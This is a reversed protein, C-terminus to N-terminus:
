AAGTRSLMLSTKAHQTITNALKADIQTSVAAGVQGPSATLVKLVQNLYNAVQPSVGGGGMLASNPIIQAPSGFNVLEPGLEGVLALGSTTGMGTGAAHSQPMHIIAALAGADGRFDYALNGMASAVATISSGLVGAVQNKLALAAAAAGQVNTGLNQFATKTYTTINSNLALMATVSGPGISKMGDSATTVNQGLGKLSPPLGALITVAQATTGGLKQVTAIVTNASNSVGVLARANIGLALGLSQAQNSIGSAASALNTLAAAAIGAPTAVRGFFNAIDQWIGGIGQAGQGGQPGLRTMVLSYTAVAIGALIGTGVNIGLGVKALLGAVGGAGAGEGAAAGGGAAGAAGEGAFRNVAAAFVDVAGQFTATATTSGITGINVGPIKNLLGIVANIGGVGAAYVSALKFAKWLVTAAVGWAVLTGLIPLHLIINGIDLLTNALIVFPPIVVLMMQGGVSLLTGLFGLLEIVETKHVEFINHLEAAGSTTTIWADLSKLMSTLTTVITTGLGASQFFVDYITIVIQKLLDWWDHFMGIVKTLFGEFKSFGAPTNLYTLFNDLWLMFGGTTQNALFTLTNLLLEVGQNFAAMATPLRSTFINELDTFNALGPGAFWTFLTQLSSQIINMNRLAFSGLTSLYDEGVQMLQNLIHAGVAEAPGTAIDYLAHFQSATLAAALVASQAAPAFGALATNLATQAAASQNVQEAAAQTLTQYTSLATYVTKIDGAAQGIGGLDTVFGVAFISLAGGALALAGVLAGGLSGALGVVTAALHEFGFGMLSLLSGFAAFGFIGGGWGLMGLLGGGAAVGGGGAGATAAAFGMLAALEALYAASAAGGITPKIQVDRDVTLAGLEAEVAAAGRANISINLDQVQSEFAAKFTAGAEEGWEAAEADIATVVGAFSPVIQLFATGANYAM